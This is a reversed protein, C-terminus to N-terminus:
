YINSQPTTENTEGQASVPSIANGTIQNKKRNVGGSGAVMANGGTRKNIPRLVRLSFVALAGIQSKIKRITIDAITIKAAAFGSSLAPSM